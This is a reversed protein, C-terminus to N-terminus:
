LSAVLVNQRVPETGYKSYKSYKSYSQGKDGGKAGGVVKGLLVQELRAGVPSNRGGGLSLSSVLKRAGEEGGGMRRLLKVAGLEFEEYSGEVEPDCNESLYLVCFDFM